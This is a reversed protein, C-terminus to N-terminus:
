RELSTEQSWGLWEANSLCVQGPSTPTRRRARPALANQTQTKRVRALNNKAWGLGLAKKPGDLAWGFGFVWCRKWGVGLGGWLCKYRPDTRFRDKVRGNKVRLESFFKSPIFIREIKAGHNSSSPVLLPAARLGLRPCCSTFRLPLAFGRHPRFHLWNPKLFFGTSNWSFDLLVAFVGGSVCFWVARRRCAPWLEPRPAGGAWLERRSVFPLRGLSRVRLSLCCSLIMLVLTMLLLVLISPKILVRFARFARFSRFDNRATSKRGCIACIKVSKNEQNVVCYETFETYETNSFFM